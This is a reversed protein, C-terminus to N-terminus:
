VNNRLSNLKQQLLEAVYAADQRNAMWIFFEKKPTSLTAVCNHDSNEIDDIRVRKKQEAALCAEFGIIEATPVSLTVRCPGFLSTQRLQLETLEVINTGRIVWVAMLLCVGAPIVYYPWWWNFEIGLFVPIMGLTIGLIIGGAKAGGTAATPLRLRLTNPPMEEVKVTAPAERELIKSRLALQESVEPDFEAELFENITDVMWNLDSETLSEGFSVVGDVCQVEIRYDPGDDISVLDARSNANLTLQKTRSWGFLNRRVVVRDPELFILVTEFCKKFWYGLLCLGIVLMVCLAIAFPWAQWIGNIKFCTFAILGLWQLSFSLLFLSRLGAGPLRFLITREDPQTFVIRSRGPPTAAPSDSSTTM